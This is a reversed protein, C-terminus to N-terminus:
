ENLYIDKLYYFYNNYFKIKNYKVIDLIVTELIYLSILNLNNLHIIMNSLIYYNENHLSSYNNINDEKFVIIDSNIINFLHKFIISNGSNFDIYNLLCYNIKNIDSIFNNLISIRENKKDINKVNFNISNLIECLYYKIQKNNLYHRKLDYLLVYLVGSNNSGVISCNINYLNSSMYLIYAIYLEKIRLNHYLLSQKNFVPYNLLKIIKDFLKYKNNISSKFFVYKSFNPLNRKYLEDHIVIIIDTPLKDM